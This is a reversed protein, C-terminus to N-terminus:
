LPPAPEQHHPHMVAALREPAPHHAAVAAIKARIAAAFLALTDRAFDHAKSAPDPDQRLAEVQAWWRSQAAARAETPDLAAILGAFDEAADPLRLLRTALTLAHIGNAGEYIATIRADRYTQEIRYETLYGYGGLVQIGIDASQIGAETAYIKCLPTLFEILAPRSGAELEVLTLHCMARATLTLAQQCELMRAVDAHDALVAATGDARKGQRRGTAYLRAIEAARAAHAVGQLAVDLRAHNMMTFMAKLGEGEKGILEAPADDFALQCTPSAHLGMKEEIRTVSIGDQDRCLFLSLGRTGSGAPGTRALVLHLIHPSLNQDGGSIFIKEGDIRWGEQRLTARTRIGSLDSGAGPETLCMTALAAGSALEPMHRAIQAPTGFRMLVRAAGPVLGTVMQLAHCAGAFVESMASHLLPPLGMGGQAEPLSVGHWGQAVYDAYVKSFGDPMLVRGEAIRCGQRDGKADLPAIEGEAFAAFHGLVERALGDDWEPLRGAGAVHTLSFLIDGLPATFPTM